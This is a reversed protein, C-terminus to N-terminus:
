KMGPAGGGGAAAVKPANLARDGLRGEFGPRMLKKERREVAKAHKDDSRVQEVCIWPPLTPSSPFIPFNCARGATHRISGSSQSDIKLLAAPTQRSAGPLTLM